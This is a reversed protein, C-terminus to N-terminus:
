QCWEYNFFSVANAQYGETKRSKICSMNNEAWNIEILPMVIHLVQKFNSTMPQDALSSRCTNECKCEGHTVTVLWM